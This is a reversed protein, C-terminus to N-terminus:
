GSLPLSLYFTSGKGLQSEVWVRGQHWDSISKVIALGLGWGPQSSPDRNRAHYFREFIRGQDGPAIGSGTDQVAILM